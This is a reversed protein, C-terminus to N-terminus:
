CAITWPAFAPAFSPPIWPPGRRPFASPRPRLQSGTRRRQGRSGFTTAATTTGGSRKSTRASPGLTCGSPLEALFNVRFDTSFALGVTRVPSVKDIGALGRGQNLRGPALITIWYQDVSGATARWMESDIKYSVEKWEILSDSGTNNVSKTELSLTSSNPDSSRAKGGDIDVRIAIPGQSVKPLTGIQFKLEYYTDSKLWQGQKVGGDSNKPNRNRLDVFYV